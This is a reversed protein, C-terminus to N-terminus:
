SVPRRRENRAKVWLLGVLAFGTATLATAAPALSGLVIVAGFVSLPVVLPWFATRSRRALAFGGLGLFLSLMYPLVLLPGNGDVPPVTTLLARWSQVSGDALGRLTGLTPIAGAGPANRLAIAGGLLFFAGVGMAILVIAPQRLVNAIHAIILGLLMGLAAVALYAWGAFTSHFEGIALLGLTFLAAADVLDDRKPLFPRPRRTTAIGLEPRRM